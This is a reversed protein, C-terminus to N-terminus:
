RSRPAFIYSVKLRGYTLAGIEVWRDVRAGSKGWVEVMALPFDVYTSADRLIM